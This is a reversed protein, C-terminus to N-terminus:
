ASPMLSNWVGKKTGSTDATKKPALKPLLYEHTTKGFQVYYSDLKIATPAGQEQGFTRGNSM